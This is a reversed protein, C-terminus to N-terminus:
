STHCAVVSTSLHGLHPSPLSDPDTGPLLHVDSAGCHTEKSGGSDTLLEGVLQSTPLVCTSWAQSQRVCRLFKENRLPASTIASGRSQTLPPPAAFAGSADRVASQHPTWALETHTVM